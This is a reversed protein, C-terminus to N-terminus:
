YFVTQNTTFGNDCSVSVNWNRSEPVSPVVTLPYTGNAKLFFPLSHYWDADYTCTGDSGSNDHINVTLGGPWPKLSVTHCGSAPCGGTVTVPVDSPTYAAGHCQGSVSAPGPAVKSFVVTWSDGPGSFDHTGFATTGGNVMAVCEQPGAHSVTFTITVERVGGVAHVATTHASAPGAEALWIIPLVAATVFATKRAKRSM